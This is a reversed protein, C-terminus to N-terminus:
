QKSQELLKDRMQMLLTELALQRNINRSINKTMETTDALFHTVEQTTM